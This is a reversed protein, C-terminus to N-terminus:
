CGSVIFSLDFVQSGLQLGAQSVTAFFACGLTRRKQYHQRFTVSGFAEDVYCHATTNAGFNCHALSCFRSKDLVHATSITVGGLLATAIRGVITTLDTDLLINALRDAVFADTVAVKELEM